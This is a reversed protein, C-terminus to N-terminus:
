TINVALRLIQSRIHGDSLIKQETVLLHQLLVVLSPDARLKLTSEVIHMSDRLLALASERDNGLKYASVLKEYLSKALFEKARSMEAIRQTCYEKATLRALEAPLGSALFLLQPKLSVDFDPLKSLYELTQKNTLKLVEIEQSRSRITALLLQPHHSTLIFVVNKPTDELLKLLANQAPVLMEDADDIIVVLKNARKTRTQSYLQRIVDIKISKKEDPIIELVSYRDSFSLATQYAITKLGVGSEGHLIIVQAQKKIIHELQRATKPHLVLKEM